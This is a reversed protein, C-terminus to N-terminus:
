VALRCVASTGIPMSIIHIDSGQIMENVFFDVNFKLPVCHAVAVM